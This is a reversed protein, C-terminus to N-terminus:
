KLDRMRFIIQLLNWVSSGPKSTSIRVVEFLGVTSHDVVSQVSFDNGEDM